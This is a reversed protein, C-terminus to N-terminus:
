EEILDKLEQRRNPDDLNFCFGKQPEVKNKFILDEPLNFYLLAKFIAMKNRGQDSLIESDHFFSLFTSGMNNENWKKYTKSFVGFIQSDLSDKVM